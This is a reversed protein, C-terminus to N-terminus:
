ARNPSKVKLFTSGGEEIEVEVRSNEVRSNEVAQHLSRLHENSMDDGNHLLPSPAKRRRKTEQSEVDEAGSSSSSSSNKTAPEEKTAAKKGLTSLVPEDQTSPLGTVTFISSPMAQTPISGFAEVASEVASQTPASIAAAAGGSVGAFKLAADTRM